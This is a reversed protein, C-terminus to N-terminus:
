VRQLKAQRQQLLSQSIHRRRLTRKRCANSNRQSRTRIRDIRSEARLSSCERLCDCLREFRKRLVADDVVAEFTLSLTKIVGSFNVQRPPERVAYLSSQRVRKSL